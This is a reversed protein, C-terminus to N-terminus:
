NDFKSRVRGLALQSEDSQWKLKAGMTEEALTSGPFLRTSSAAANETTNKM